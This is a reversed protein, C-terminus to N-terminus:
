FYYRVAGGGGFYFGGYFENGAIYTPRLEATVEVPFVRFQWALGAVGSVGLATASGYLGNFLELGAGGGINWNLAGAAAKVIVPMEWLVDAGVSLGGFWTGLTGQLAVKDTVFYKASLGSSLSSGGLGLGFKGAHAYPMGPGYNDPTTTVVVTDANAALPLALLAAALVAGLGRTM